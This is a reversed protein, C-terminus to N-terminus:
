YSISLLLNLFVIVLSTIILIIVIIKKVFINKILISKEKIFILSLFFSLSSLVGLILNVWIIAIFNSLHYLNLERYREALIKWRTLNETRDQSHIVNMITNFLHVRLFLDYSLLLLCVLGSYFFLKTKM